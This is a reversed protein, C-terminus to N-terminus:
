SKKRQIADRIRAAQEYDEKAISEKMLKELKRLSLDDLSQPQSALEEEDTEEELTLEEFMGAVKLIEETTYIPCGFRVALAISDSTRADINYEKGDKECELVSYFIGDKLEKIFVSNLQISIEEFVNKFLDHTLPRGTPMEELAIAIAQAEFSGIIIPLRREDEKEKLVVAYSNNSSVSHTLTVVSLEVRDM